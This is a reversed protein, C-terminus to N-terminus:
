KLVDRLNLEAILRTEKDYARALDAAYATPDQYMVPMILRDLGAKFDDSRTAVAFAKVLRSRAPEPIGAPGAIGFPSAFVLDYGLDRLTPVDPFQALRQEGWTNLLRLRGDQVLPTWGSSDAVMDVHRGLLAQTAENGGKFPVHNFTVKAARSLMEMGIHLQTGVGPSAYSVKGPEARAREILEPLSQYPSDSNVVIGFTFGAVRAIPTYDKRPDFPLRGLQAFRTSSQSLQGITYGDPRAAGIVQAGLMSAAGPRNEVVFSQGLEQAAVRTLTRMLGDSTSGAPWPVVFTIPREPYGAQARASRPLLTSAVTTAATGAVTAGASAGALLMRRRTQRKITIM